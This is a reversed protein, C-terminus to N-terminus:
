ILKGLRTRNFRGTAALLGLPFPEERNRNQESSWEEALHRLEKATILAVNRDFHQAHYHIAESESEETFDPAIVLFVPVSKDAHNMYGDFQGIHDKLNVPTEKSKNDWMLYNSQLSLLGDPHNSGRQQLPVHNLKKAFLYRTAEEFKTEIELDKEIVHQARLTDYGRRALEEYFEYWRAREDPVETEPPRLQDFHTIIRDIREEIAGSPSIHLERCWAALHKSNLGYRPSNSAIAKSAPVYNVFRDVLIEITDQRGFDVSCRALVDTLHSKRRLHRYALLQRYSETRLEIRLIQRLVSALEEPIVDTDVNDDQRIAFLFGIGQLYRRVEHIESRTHLENEPKPYKGIKAELLRHDIENINLHERLKRLLNVEDPSKSDENEWAVRLVFNYLELDRHRQSDRNGCALDLLTTENSRNLISQEFTIVREETRSFPLAFDYQDLLVDALMLRSLDRYNTRPDRYLVRELNSRVTEEHLYQPKVKIIAGRLEGDALQRHDVVHAGAIRRLDTLTGIAGVADDFKM